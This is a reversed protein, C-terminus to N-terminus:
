SVQRQLKKIESKLAKVDRVLDNSSNNKKNYLAKELDQKSVVQKKLSSIEATLKQANDAMIDGLSGIAEMAQQHQLNMQNSLDNFCQLMSQGLMQTSRMIMECVDQKVRAIADVIQETQKQRDYLQLAEKKSEARGSSLYWIILDLGEWDGESIVSDYQKVLVQYMEDSSTTLFNVNAKKESVTNVVEPMNEKQLELLYSYKEENSKINACLQALQLDIAETCQKKIKSKKACYVICQIPLSLIFFPLTIIIGLVKLVFGLILYTDFITNRYVLEGPWRLMAFLDFDMKKKINEKIINEKNRKSTEYKVKSSEIEQKVEITGASVKELKEECASITNQDTKMEEYNQSLLSLGARLTYLDCILKNNEETM